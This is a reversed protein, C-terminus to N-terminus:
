DGAACLRCDTHVALEHESWDPAGAGEAPLACVWVTSASADGHRAIFSAAVRAAQGIVPLLDFSAGTFTRAACGRPQVSGGPESPPLPITGDSAAHKWCHWCGGAGPVILAIQGGRAGETASVYLQAVGLERALETFLQQIAIEATTDILLDAGRLFREVLDFENESRGRRELATQGLRHPFPEVFTFPYDLGIRQVITDLKPIGVATLGAPWRVTQGVEVTDHELLRLRGTQNRALELALPAGLAGLGALAITGERLPAVAPIRDGLDAVTLREGAVIVAGEHVAGASHRRFRVGFLWTDEWEGQRVEEPFVVGVVAVEGDALPHWPPRGFGPQAADAAALVGDASIDEPPEDLRAWRIALERGGFRAVLVQPAQAVRTTKGRRPKVVLESLLGRFGEGAEPALAIRGSGVRHEPDLVLAEDPVFVATGPTSGFYASVPEGQPAEAARMAEPGQDSVSLLLPVREAVLWAGTNSPSWNRTGRELLCLNHERPNQHRTLRLGPAFVEPRLYPFLDPYLVELAVLEGGFELEGRLLVRGADRFLAEDLEFELGRARFEEREAELRGPFREWWAAV